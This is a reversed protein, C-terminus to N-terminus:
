LSASCEEKKKPTKLAACVDIPNQRRLRVQPRPSAVGAHGLAAATELAYSLLLMTVASSTMIMHPFDALEPSSTTATASHYHPPSLFTM